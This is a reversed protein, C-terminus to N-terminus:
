FSCPLCKQLGLLSHKTRQHTAIRLLSFCESTNINWRCPGTASPHAVGRITAGKCLAQMNCKIVEQLRARSPMGGYLRAEARRARCRRAARRLPSSPWAAPRRRAAAAEAACGASSAHEAACHGAATSALKAAGDATSALEAAGAAGGATSAFEASRHGATVTSALEAAHGLSSGFSLRDQLPTEAAQPSSFSCTDNTSCTQKHAHVFIICVGGSYPTARCSCINHLGRGFLANSPM